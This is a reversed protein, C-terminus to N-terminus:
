LYKILYNEGTKFNFKNRYYNKVGDGSIVAIKTYNTNKVIDIAKNMLLTGYGCHQVGKVKIKQNVNHTAQVLGYVHLERILACGQLEKFMKKPYHSPIRLRLFGMCKNEYNCGKWLQQLKLQKIIPIPFIYYFLFIFISIILSKLLFIYYSICFNCSCTEYSLFYETGFSAEEIYVRFRPNDNENLKDKVERCRICKCRKGEKKMKEQIVQRLNNIKTGAQIFKNSFDRILRNIRKNRAINEKFYSCLLILEDPNKDYRPKYIGEDYWKKIQTYNTIMTPYIKYQDAYFNPNYLITEMTEFDDSFNSFPLDPMIHIDVKFCNDLLLKIAKISDKNYCQRNNKRLIEDNTSQIGLQVRTCGYSRFRKLEPLTIKDPRTELTVGIIKCKTSENIIRENQLDFKSRITSYDDFITNAAYYVDNMFEECYSPQYCNFTGGLVIIELKDIEHGNNKLTILRERVQLFGSFNNREGRQVTPEEPIYSKAYQPYSPCFSCNYNCSFDDPKMIVSVVIVGHLSRSPFKKLCQILIDNKFDFKNYYYLLKSKSPNIKYKRQAKLYLLNFKKKSIIDNFEELFLKYKQDNNTNSIIDEIDTM